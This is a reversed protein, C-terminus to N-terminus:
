KLQAAIRLNASDMISNILDQYSKGKLKCLIPLDSDVPNLGALPNVELFYVNGMSDMKLDVRGGDRCDLARWAGLAVEECKKSDLDDALHYKVYDLYESKSKYSYIGNDSNKDIIIEMTAIAKASDGQGIIGVTFERGDLFTEALIPQNYNKLQHIAEVRLENDNNVVSNGSIGIGTGGYLPKLFLPYNLNVSNIEDESNIVQFKPTPVSKSDVITKAIAKNLSTTLVLSNSFVCDIGYAELLSPVQSERSPGFLGECINFVLDVRKGLDLFEVLDFVNGIRITNYGYTKLANDIANITEINDLEAVLEKKYGKKIYDDKLDYTLGITKQM